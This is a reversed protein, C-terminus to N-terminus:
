GSTLQYDAIKDKKLDIIAGRLIGEQYESGPNICVTRGIKISGRSEHIHGFLGLLPQHKEIALRVSSSGAGFEVLRGEKLVPKPPYVSDDLQPCTDLQSDKPPVHINFICNKMDQVKSIMKDIEEKLREESVERPTKWPTPNSFGSSIMEKNEDIKVVEGEPDIIFNSGRLITEVEYPDDNGGTIYVQVGTGRLKGEILRIWAELRDKMLQFLITGAKERDNTLTVLEDPSCHYPYYGSNKVENEFKELEKEDQLDVKRQYYYAEYTHENKKVIPTMMKGTIDGGLIVIGAKYFPGASVFKRFARESGHVDTAFFVRTM